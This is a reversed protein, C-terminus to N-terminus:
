RGGPRNRIRLHALAEPRASAVTFERKKGSAPATAVFFGAAAMNRRVWGAASYTVLRAHPHAHRFAVEFVATTWSEPQQGPGFPDFYIADFRQPTAFDIFNTRVVELIAAPTVVRGAVTASAALTHAETGLAGLVDSPVPMCDIAVYHVCRGRGRLAELTQSFNTAAGFGFELVHPAEGCELVGSGEVFVTRAEAHAGHLSRYSWGCDRRVLTPSGDGTQTWHVLEADIM